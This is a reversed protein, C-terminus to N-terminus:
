LDLQNLKFGRVYRNEIAAVRIDEKMGKDLLPLVEEMDLNRKECFESIAEIVNLGEHRCLYHIENAFLEKNSLKVEDM